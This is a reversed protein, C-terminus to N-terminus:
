VPQPQRTLMVLLDHMQAVVGPVISYHVWKGRKESTILGAERLVKLHHSITPQGLDFCDTIDCVCVADANAALMQVIALRTEDGLAAFLAASEKVARRNITMQSSSTCCEATIIPLEKNM